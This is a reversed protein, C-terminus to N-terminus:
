WSCARRRICSLNYKRRRFQNDTVICCFCCHQFVVNCIKTFSFCYPLCVQWVMFSDFRGESVRLISPGIMYLIHILVKLSKKFHPMIKPHTKLFLFLDYQSKVANGLSSFFIFKLFMNEESRGVTYSTTTLITILANVQRSCVSFVYFAFIDQRHSKKERASFYLLVNWFISKSATNWTFM